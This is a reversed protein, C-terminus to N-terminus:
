NMELRALKNLISDIRSIVEKPMYSEKDKGILTAMILSLFESDSLKELQSITESQEVIMNKGVFCGVKFGLGALAPFYSM